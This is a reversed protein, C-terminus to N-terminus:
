NVEVLSVNDICVTSSGTVATANLQLAVGAEVNGMSLTHTHSFTRVVDDVGPDDTDSFDETFPLVALGVKAMISVSLPGTSKVDYSLTYAKGSALHAAKSIDQPWGLVLFPATMSDLTTCFTGDVVAGTTQTGVGTVGWDAQGDSFDGNTVLNPGTQGSSGAVSLSGAAGSSGAGGGDLGGAGSAM